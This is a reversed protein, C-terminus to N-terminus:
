EYFKKIDNLKIVINGGMKTIYSENMMLQQNNINVIKKPLKSSLSNVTNSFKSQFTEIVKKYEYTASEGSLLVSVMSNAIKSEDLENNLLFNYLGLSRGMAIYTPNYLLKTEDTETFAMLMLSHPLTINDIPKNNNGLYTIMSQDLMNKLLLAAEKDYQHFNIIMSCRKTVINLEEQELDEKAINYIPYKYSTTSLKYSLKEDLEEPTFINNIITFPINNEIAQMLINMYIIKTKELCGYFTTSSRCEDSKLIIPKKVEDHGIYIDTSSYSLKKNKSFYGISNNYRNIERLLLQSMMCEKLIHNNKCM